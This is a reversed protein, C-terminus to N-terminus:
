EDLMEWSVHENSKKLDEACQLCYIKIWGITMVEAPKGCRECVKYSLSEAFSIWTHYEPLGCSIYFRMGGFKEKVQLVKTPNQELIELKEKLKPLQKQWYESDPQTEAYEINEKTKDLDHQIKELLTEVIPM